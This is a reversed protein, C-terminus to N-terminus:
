KAVSDMAEALNGYVPMIRTIGSMELIKKIHVNTCVIVARGNMRMINRYRGLIVGIGSSDMFALKSLDFVLNKVPVRLLERDIRERIDPANHHDLEGSTYVLLTQGNHSYTIQM